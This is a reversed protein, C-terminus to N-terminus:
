SGARRRARARRTADSTASRPVSGDGEAHPAGAASPVEGSMSVVAGASVGGAGGTRTM